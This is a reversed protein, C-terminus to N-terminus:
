ELPKIVLQLNYINSILVFLWTRTYINEDVSNLDVKININVHTYCHSM